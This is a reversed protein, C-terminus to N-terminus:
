VGHLPVAGETGFRPITLFADSGHGQCTFISLGGGFYEAYMRALPLGIGSRLQADLALGNQLQADLAAKGATTSTPADDDALEAQQAQHRELQEKVTGALEGVSRLAMIGTATPDRPADGASLPPTPAPAADLALAAPGAGGGARHQHQHQYFRRMHSFSFIDLRQASLPAAVLSSSGGSSSSSSSAGGGTGSLFPGLTQQLDTPDPPLGGYPAIGGGEDSVRVMLERKNHALTVTIPHQAAASAGHAAVTAHAAGKILEFIMFELHESIYAFTQDTHGEIVIPVQAAPGGLEKMVGQCLQVVDSANLRTDVIGVHRAADADSVAASSSARGKGKANASATRQRDRFQQTLAIHQETIVRRSIRSRLMRLMIRDLAAAPLHMPSTESVGIAMEPIIVRHKDLTETMFQCFRDNADLDTIPPHKRIGEFAELYLDYVHQLRPHSAVAYPLEQLDRLRHSLRTPLETRLFNGGKILKDVEEKEGRNRGANGFNIMHKLSIPTSPKSAYSEIVKNLFFAPVTSKRTAQQM